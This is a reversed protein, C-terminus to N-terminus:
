KTLAGIFSARKSQKVPPAPPAEQETVPLGRFAYKWVDPDGALLKLLYREWFGTLPEEPLVPAQPIQDPGTGQIKATWVWKWAGDDDGLPYMVSAPYEGGPITIERPLPAKQGTPSARELRWLPGDGYKEDGKLLSDCSWVDRDDLGLGGCALRVRVSSHITEATGVLPEKTDENTDEDVRLSLGPRRITKGAWTQVGAPPSRIMGLAWPRAFQWLGTVDGNAPLDPHKDRGDCEAEDRKPPAFPHHFLPDSAWPRPDESSSSSSSSGKRFLKSLGAATRSPAPAFPFPHAASFRLGQIFINTMRAFNFEVGLTALQDCMWALTINAMQQDYWGGGINAHSGPFWVQKLKTKSSAVREWLSPRFAYRPEDLGLAQFAYEVHDSIQTNTFRWQDASGRV